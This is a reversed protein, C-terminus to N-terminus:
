KKGEEIFISFLFTLGLSVKIGILFNLSVLFIRKSEQPANVGFFNTLPTDTTFLSIAAFALIGLFLMKELKLIKLLSFSNKENVFYILLYATSLVVGGQFGGGPSIDGNYIIYIGYIIVFPFILKSVSKLIVSDRM